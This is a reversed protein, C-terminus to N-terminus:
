ESSVWAVKVSDIKLQSRLFHTNNHETLSCDAGPETPCSRKSQREYQKRLRWICPWNISTVTIM